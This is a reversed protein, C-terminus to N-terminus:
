HIVFVLLFYAVAGGIFLLQIRDAREMNGGKQRRGNRIETYKLASINSILRFSFYKDTM